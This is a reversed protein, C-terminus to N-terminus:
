WLASELSTGLWHSVDNCLLAMEWQSPAFRSDARNWLISVLDLWLWTVIDWKGTTNTHGETCLVMDGQQLVEYKVSGSATYHLFYEICWLWCSVWKSGLGEVLVFAQQKTTLHKQINNSSQPDRKRNLQQCNMIQQPTPESFAGLYKQYWYCSIVMIWRQTTKDWKFSPCTGQCWKWMFATKEPIQIGM